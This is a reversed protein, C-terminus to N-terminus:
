QAHGHLRHGDLELEGTPTSMRYSGTWEQATAVAAGLGVTAVVSGLCAIIRNITRV